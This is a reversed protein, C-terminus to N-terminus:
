SPLSVSLCVSVSLSLSFYVHLFVNASTFAFVQRPKPYGDPKEILALVFAAVFSLLRVGLLPWLFIAVAPVVVVVAM